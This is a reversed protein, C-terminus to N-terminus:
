FTHDFKAMPPEMKENKELFFCLPDGVAALAVAAGCRTESLIFLDLNSLRNIRVAESHSCYWM